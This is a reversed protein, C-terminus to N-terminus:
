PGAIEKLAERAFHGIREDDQIATLAPIAAEAARSIKGLAVVVDQRVWRNEDALADILAPVAVEAAPVSM